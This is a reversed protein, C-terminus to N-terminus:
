TRLWQLRLAFVRQGLCPADPHGSVLGVGSSRGKMQRIRIRVQGKESVDCCGDAVMSKESVSIADFTRPYGAGHMGRTYVTGPYGVFRKSCYRFLIFRIVGKHSTITKGQLVIM